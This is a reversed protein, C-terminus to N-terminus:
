AVEKSWIASLWAEWMCRTWHSIYVGKSDQRFHDTKRNAWAEFRDQENM